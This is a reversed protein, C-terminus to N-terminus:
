KTCPNARRLVALNAFISNVYEDGLGESVVTKLAGITTTSKIASLVDVAVFWPEGDVTVVRVSQDNFIFLQLNSM